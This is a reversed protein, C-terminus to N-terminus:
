CRNGASKTPTKVEPTNSSKPTLPKTTITIKSVSPSSLKKNESGKPDTLLKLHLLEFNPNDTEKNMTELYSVGEYLFITGTLYRTM